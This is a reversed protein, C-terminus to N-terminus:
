SAKRVKTTIKQLVRWGSDAHLLALLLTCVASTLCWACTAGIVFPQLFTLFISFAVGILTLLFSIGPIYEYFPGRVYKGYVNLMLLSVYDIVGLVAVPLFGFLLAFESQQVANCDGIPGCVAETQTTEVYTLYMAAVLGVAILVFIGWPDFRKAFSAHWPRPKLVAVFTIVLGILVVVAIINATLDRTFREALSAPQPEAVGLEEVVNKIGPLAPWDVGGMQLYQDIYEPLYEPIERSGVLIKDGIVLTPVGVIEPKLLTVAAQWLANGAPTSTDLQAIVLKNGYEKQLVPLVDRMVDHCHPCTPSYFFVVHVVGDGQALVPLTAVSVVVAIFLVVLVRKFM